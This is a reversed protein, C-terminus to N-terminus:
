VCIFNAHFDTSNYALSYDKRKKVSVSSNLCFQMINNKM